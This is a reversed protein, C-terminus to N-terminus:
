DAPWVIRFAGRLDGADYGTARDDPYGAKLTAAVDPDLVAGHCALCPEGVMIPKMYLASGDARTEWHELSAPPEGAGIRRAFTELVARQPETPANAPNRLRESTRGVQAGLSRSQDAAIAPAQVQCVGIAGAPGGAALGATLAGKLEAGFAAVAQRSASLRPDDATSAAGASVTHCLLAVLVLRFAASRRAFPGTPTHLM